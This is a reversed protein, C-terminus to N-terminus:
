PERDSKCFYSNPGAKLEQPSAPETSPAGTPGAKGVVFVSEANQM